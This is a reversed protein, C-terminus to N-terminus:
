VIRKKVGSLFGGEEEPDTSETRAVAHIETGRRLGEANIALSAHMKKAQMSSRLRRERENTLKPRQDGYMAAMDAADLDSDTDQFENRITWFETEIQWTQSKWDGYTISGLAFRNSSETAIFDELHQDDVERGIDMDGITDWYGPPAAGREAAAQSAMQSAAQREQQRRQFEEQERMAREREASSMEERAAAGM